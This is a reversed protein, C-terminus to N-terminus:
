AKWFASSSIAVAAATGTSVAVGDSSAALSSALGVLLVQVRRRARHAVPQRLLARGDRVLEGDGAVLAVDGDAEVGVVLRALDEDAHGLLSRRDRAQHIGEGSRDRKGQLVAHRQLHQAFLERVRAELRRAPRAVLLDAVGLAQHIVNEAPDIQAEKRALLQREEGPQSGFRRLQGGRGAQKRLVIGVLVIRRRRLLVQRPQGLFHGLPQVLHAPTRAAPDRRLRLRALRLRRVGRVHGAQLVAAQIVRGVGHALHVVHAVRGTAIHAAGDHHAVATAVAAHAAPRRAPATLFRFIYKILHQPHVWLTFTRGWLTFTSVTRALHWGFACHTENGFDASTEAASESQLSTIRHGPSVVLFVAFRM